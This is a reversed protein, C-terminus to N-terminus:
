ARRYLLNENRGYFAMGNVNRHKKLWGMMGLRALWKEWIPAKTAQARAVKVVLLIRPANRETQKRLYWLWLSLYPM